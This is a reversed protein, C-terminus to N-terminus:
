APSFSGGRKAARALISNNLFYERAEEPLRRNREAEERKVEELTKITDAPPPGLVAEMGVFRGFHRPSLLAQRFEHDHEERFARAQAMRGWDTPAEAEEKSRAPMEKDALLLHHSARTTVWMGIM